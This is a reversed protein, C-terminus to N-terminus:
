KEDASIPDISQYTYTPEGNDDWGFLVQFEYKQESDFEVICWLTLTNDGNNQAERDTDLTVSTVEGYTSELADDAEIHDSTMEFVATEKASYDITKLFNYGVFWLAVGAIAIFLLAVAVIVAIIGIKKTSKNM